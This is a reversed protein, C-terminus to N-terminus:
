KNEFAARPGSLADASVSVHWLCGEDPPVWPHPSLSSFSKWGLNPPKAAYTSPDVAGRHSGLVPPMTGPKRAPSQRRRLVPNQTHKQVSRVGGTESVLIGEGRKPLDSAIVHVFPM